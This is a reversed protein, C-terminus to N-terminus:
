SARGTEVGIKTGAGTTRVPVPTSGTQAQTHIEAGSGRVALESTGVQPAKKAATGSARVAITTAGTQARVTASSEIGGAAVALVAAGVQPAKKVATGTAAIAVAGAATQPVKKVATGAARAAVVCSGTQAVKKVAIGTGIVALVATGADAAVLPAEGTPGTRNAAALMFSRLVYPHIASPASGSPAPIIEVAVYRVNASAVPLTANVSISQGAVGDNNTRRFIGYSIDPAGVNASSILSTGTSASEAGKADWDIVVMYGRSADAQATYTGAVSTGSNQSGKVHGGFIAEAAGDLVRVALAAHRTGSPANNAVTVTQSGWGAPVTAVWGAAQGDVAPTGGDGRLSVEVPTWSLATGSNSIGPPTPPSPDTSNGAWLALLKMNTPPAFAATTLNITTGSTQTVVAPTSPDEQIVQPM